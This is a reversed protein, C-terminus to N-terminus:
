NEDDIKSCVFELNFIGDLFHVLNGGRSDVSENSWVSLLFGVDFDGLVDFGNINGIFDTDDLNSVIRTSLKHM